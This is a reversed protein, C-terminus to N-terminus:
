QRGLRDRPPQGAGSVMTLAAMERFPNWQTLQM